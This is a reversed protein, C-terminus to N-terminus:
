MRAFLSPSSATGSTQLGITQGRLSRLIQLGDSAIVMDDYKWNYPVLSTIGFSANVFLFVILAPFPGEGREVFGWWDEFRWFYLGTFLAAILNVAPGAAIMLLMRSRSAMTVSPAVRVMGSVPFAKVTWFSGRWAGEWVTRGQGM